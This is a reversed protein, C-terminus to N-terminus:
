VTFGVRAGALTDLVGELLLGYSTARYTNTLAFTAFQRRLRGADSAIVPGPVGARLGMTALHAALYCRARQLTNTEEGGFVSPEFAEENVYALIETQALDPVRGLLEPAPTGNVVDDWSIAAM